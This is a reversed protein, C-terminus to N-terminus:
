VPADRDATLVDCPYHSADHLLIPLPDLYPCPAPHSTKTPTDPLRNSHWHIPPNPLPFCLVLLPRSTLVQYVQPTQLNTPQVPSNHIHALRFFVTSEISTLDLQFPFPFPTYQALASIPLGHRRIRKSILTWRRFVFLSLLVYPCFFLRSFTNCPLLHSAFKSSWGVWQILEPM